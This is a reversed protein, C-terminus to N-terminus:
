GVDPEDAALQLNARKQTTKNKSAAALAEMLGPSAPGAKVEVAGGSEQWSFKDPTDDYITTDGYTIVLRKSM